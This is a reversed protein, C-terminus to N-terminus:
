ATKEIIAGTIEYEYGQIFDLAIPNGGDDITKTDSTATFTTPAVVVDEWAGYSGIVATRKRILPSVEYELGVILLTCEIEYGSTRETWTFGTSRTEWLSSCSTGATPTERAAADIETDEDSLATTGSGSLLVEVEGDCNPESSNFDQSDSCSQDKLIASTVTNTTSGIYGGCVSNLIRDSTSPAKPSSPCETFTMHMNGNTSTGTIACTTSSYQVTSVFPSTEVDTIRISRFDPSPCCKWRQFSQGSYTQTSLRYKKPPVSAVILGGTFESHGCLEPDIQESECTVAAAPCACPHIYKTGDARDCCTFLDFSMGLIPQAALILM